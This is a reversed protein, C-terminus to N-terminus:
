MSMPIDTAMSIVYEFVTTSVTSGVAIFFLLLAKSGLRMLSARIKMEAKSDPPHKVIHRLISCFCYVAYSSILVYILIFTYTVLEAYQILPSATWDEKRLSM